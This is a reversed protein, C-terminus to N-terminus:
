GGRIVCGAASSRQAGSQDGLTVQDLQVPPQEGGLAATAASRASAHLLVGPVRFRGALWLGAPQELDRFGLMGNRIETGDNGDNGTFGARSSWSFLRRYRWCPVPGFTM